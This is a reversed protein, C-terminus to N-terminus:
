DNDFMGRYQNGNKWKMIGYGHKYGNEYEGEYCTGDVWREM